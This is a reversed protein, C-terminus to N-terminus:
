STSNLWTYNQSIQLCDKTVSDNAFIFLKWPETITGSLQNQNISEAWYSFIELLNGDFCGPLGLTSALRNQVGWDELLTAAGIAEAPMEPMLYRAPKVMFPFHQDSALIAHTYSQSHVPNAQRCKALAFTNAMYMADSLILVSQNLTPLEYTSTNYTYLQKANNLAEQTLKQQSLFQYQATPHYDAHQFLYLPYDESFSLFFPKNLAEAFQLPTELSLSILWFGNAQEFQQINGTISYGNM